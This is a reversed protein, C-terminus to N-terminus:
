LDLVDKRTRVICPGKKGSISSGTYVDLAALIVFGAFKTLRAPSIIRHGPKPTTKKMRSLGPGTSSDAAGPDKGLRRYDTRKPVVAKPQIWGDQTM